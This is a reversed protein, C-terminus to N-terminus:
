PLDKFVGIQTLKEPDLSLIHGESTQVLVAQSTVELGSSEAVPVESLQHTQLQSDYSAVVWHGQNKVIAYALNGKIVVPALPSVEQASQAVVTLETTSLLVLRVTADGRNEGATVLWHDGLKQYVERRISNLKSAKWLRQGAIDILDLRSLGPSVTQLFPLTTPPPVQPPPTPQAQLAQDAKQIAQREKQLQVDRQQNAAQAKQLEQKEKEVQAPSMVSPPSPVPIPTTGPTPTSGPTPQPTPVSSTALPTATPLPTPSPSTMPTPTPTESAQALAEAKQNIVKQEKVIEAEKLDALKKREELANTQTMNKTVSSNSVEEANVQGAPGQSLTDRLPIVLRTKGPWDRYSLAIGANESTLNASLEPVYKQSFYAVNGRYVANYRTVFDALLLADDFSYGFAKELYGAVIWNLNRITDVSAQPELVLVDASLLSSNAEHFRYAKYYPGGVPGTSQLREEGLARGIGIIQERTNYVSVPGVYDIFHISKLDANKLVDEAVSQADLAFPLGLTLGWLLALLKILRRM